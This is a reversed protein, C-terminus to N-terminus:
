CRPMRVLQSSTELSSKQEHWLVPFPVLIGRLDPSYHGDLIAELLEPSLLTLRLVRSVYSANVKESKAIEDITSYEGKELLKRWRFARGLAKLVPISAQPRPSHPAQGDPSVILKRGGRSRIAFPVHVNFLDSTM